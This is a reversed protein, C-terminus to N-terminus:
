PLPSELFSRQYRSLPAKRSRIHHPIGTNAIDGPKQEGNALPQVELKIQIRNLRPSVGHKAVQSPLTRPSQAPLPDRDHGEPLGAHGSGREPPFNRGNLVFSRGHDAHVPLREGLKSPAETNPQM